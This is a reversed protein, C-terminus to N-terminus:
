VAGALAQEYDVAASGPHAAIFRQAGGATAFPRFTVGDKVWIAKDAFWRTGFEADSVYAARV